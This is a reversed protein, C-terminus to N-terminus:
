GRYLCLHGPKQADDELEYHAHSGLNDDHVYLVRTSGGRMRLPAAQDTVSVDVVSPPESFGTVTVAHGAGGDPTTLLLVVRLHPVLCPGLKARFLALNAAPVVRAALYGLGSLATALQLEDLGPSAPYPSAAAQTIAWPSPTKQGDLHAVQQLASWLASSACV